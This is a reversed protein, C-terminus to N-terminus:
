ETDGSAPTLTSVPSQEWRSNRARKRPWVTTASALARRNYSQPERERAPQRGSAADAEVPGVREKDHAGGGELALLPSNRKHM